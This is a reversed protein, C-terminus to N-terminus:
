KKLEIKSKEPVDAILGRKLLCRVTVDEPPLEVTDGKKLSYEGRGEESKINFVTVPATVIYKKM